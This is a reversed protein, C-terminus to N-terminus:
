LGPQSRNRSGLGACNTVADVLDGVSMGDAEILTENTLTDRLGEERQWEIAAGIDRFGDARATLRETITWEAVVLRVVHGDVPFAHALKVVSLPRLDTVLVPAYGRQLYSGIVHRLHDFALAEEEASADTWGANLHWQRFDSFEIAVRGVSANLAQM